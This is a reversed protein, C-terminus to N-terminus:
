STYINKSYKLFNNAWAYIDNKQVINRLRSIRMKKTNGHMNLAENISDAVEEIDYPNVLISYKKM